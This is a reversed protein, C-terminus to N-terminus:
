LVPGFAILLPTGWKARQADAMFIKRAKNGLFVLLGFVLLAAGVVAVIHNDFQPGHMNQWETDAIGHVFDASGASSGDTVPVLLRRGHMALRLALEYVIAQCNTDGNRYVRERQGTFYRAVVAPSLHDYTMTGNM